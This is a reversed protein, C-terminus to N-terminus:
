MGVNHGTEIDTESDGVYFCEDKTVQLSAMCKECLDPYPKIRLNEKPGIVYDFLDGFYLKVVEQAAEDAKNTVVALKLGMKKLEKLTDVIGEFPKTTLNQLRLYNKMMLAYREDTVEEGEPLAEQLFKRVGYGVLLRTEEKTHTPFGLEELTANVINMLDELTDTLTGDLDFLIAKKM